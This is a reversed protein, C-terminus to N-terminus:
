WSQKKNLTYLDYYTESTEGTKKNKYTIKISTYPFLEDYTYKTGGSSYTYEHTYVTKKALTIKKNNKVKKYVITGKSNYAGVEISVLQYGKKMTVKLNGSTRTSFPYYNILDKGAFKISKVPDVYNGYGKAVVKITKTCRVTGDAKIVDFTVQYNGAKKAFFSIYASRYRWETSMKDTVYDKTTICNFSERTKKAILNSSNSKVNVVRDGDNELWISTYNDGGYAYTSAYGIGVEIEDYYEVGNVEDDVEKAEAKMDMQLTCLLVMSLMLLSQVATKIYKKM